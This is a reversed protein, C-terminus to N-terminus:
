VPKMSITIHNAKSLKEHRTEWIKDFKITQYSCLYCKSLIKDKVGDLISEKTKVEMRGDVTFSTKARLPDNYTEISQKFIGIGSNPRPTQHCTQNPLMVEVMYGSCDFDMASDKGGRYRIHETLSRGDRGQYINTGKEKTMTDNLSFIIMEKVNLGKLGEVPYNTGSDQLNHEGFVESFTESTYYVVSTDEGTLTQKTDTGKCSKEFENRRQYFIINKPISVSPVIDIAEELSVNSNSSDVCSILTSPDLNFSFIQKLSVSDGVAYIPFSNFNSSKTRDSCYSVSWPWPFTYSIEEGRIFNSLSNLSERNGIEYDHIDGNPDNYNKLYFLIDRTGQHFVTESSDTQMRYNNIMNIFINDNWKGRYGEKFKLDPLKLYLTSGNTEDYTHRSVLNYTVLYNSKDQSDTKDGSLTVHETVYKSTAIMTPKLSFYIPGYGVGRLIEDRREEPISKEQSIKNDPTYIPPPRSISTSM